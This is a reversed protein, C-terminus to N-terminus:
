PVRGEPAQAPSEHPRPSGDIGLHSPAPSNGVFNGMGPTRPGTSNPQQGNAGNTAVTSVYQDLASYPEMTPHQHSYNFLPNMMGLVEALELYRFVAPTIGMSPKVKSLPLDIEPPPQPPSKMAKQKKKNMEPSQKGDPPSNVKHWEKQWEHLPRAANLIQTRPIYEEHSNTVFELLEIKQDADFHAKLTGNAVLQSGNDFWYVFSSKECSIYHGNHLEREFGREMVMQMTKIGSEFHTHFYRALAPFTIEYQKNSNEDVLWVSHRLVGKPSFFQNVFDLWYNLDDNQKSGGFNSLRDSFQILKIICQSKMKEGQQRQQQQLMAAAAAQQQQQQMSAQHQQHPAQQNQQTQPQPNPQPQQIQAQAQAQPQGQNQQAAAAAQAQQHAQQMMATQAQANQAQQPNMPPQGPNNGAQAVQAMQLQQALLLQQQHHHQAQAHQQQQMSDVQQQQQQLHQPLNVPRAMPNGRMAQYQAQSMQGGMGNPMMPVVGNYQQALMAQRHQQQQQQQQQRMLQQQLSPNYMQQQMFQAQQSNPNLHHLAHQNPGGAGPPMGGMMAGGQSVQPGPGSVGMPMQQMGPGPQGHQNPNHQVGMPHGQAMGPHQQMGGPHASYAQSMSM